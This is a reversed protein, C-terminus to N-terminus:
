IRGTRWAWVQPAVFYLIPAGTRRKAHRAFPLNFGGSDVLVVLDPRERALARALRRWTWVVRSLSGALEFLGGGALERQDALYRSFRGQGPRDELM